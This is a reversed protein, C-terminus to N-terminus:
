RFVVDGRKIQGETINIGSVPEKLDFAKQVIEMQEDILYLVWDRRSLGEAPIKYSAPCYIVGPKIEVIEIYKDTDIFDKIMRSQWPALNLAFRKERFVVEGKNIQGETINIGSVPEKLGFEKQVIEMQEDTLYLVWDRRSLGEAPIKYSAPCKIVGPNIEVADVYIELELFDKAIRSQWPVLNLTFTKEQSKM